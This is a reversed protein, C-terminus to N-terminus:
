TRMVSVFGHHWCCRSLLRGMTEGAQVRECRVAELRREQGIALYQKQEVHLYMTVCITMDRHTICPLAVFYNHYLVDDHM